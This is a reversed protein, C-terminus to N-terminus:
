RGLLGRDALERAVVEAVFAHGAASWHGDVEYYFSNRGHVAAERMRPLLDIYPVGLGDAVEGLRREPLDPDMQQRSRQSGGIRQHWYDLDVEWGPVSAIAFPVGRGVTQDRFRALLATTIAWAQQWEKDQGVTYLGRFPTVAGGVVEIDERVFQPGLRSFVGGEIVNYLWCCERLAGIIPAPSRPPPGPILTLTGDDELEFYPKLAKSLRRDPIELRYSNNKVDNWPFFFLVVLDPQYRELDKEYFLLQQATGYAAVGANIVEVPQTPDRNLIAELQRAVTEWEQVQVGEVFSDGVLLVRFTGPPKDYRSRRDRLGLPSISIHTVYEPAKMWGTYGPAHVHGLYEDRVIYAGTDYGGPIWPGFLRLSLEILILPAVLGLVVAV